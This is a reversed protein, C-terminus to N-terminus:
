GVSWYLGKLESDKAKTESNIAKVMDNNNKMIYTELGGETSDIKGWINCSYFLFCIYLTGSGFVNQATVASSKNLVWVEPTM